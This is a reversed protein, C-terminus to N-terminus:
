KNVASVLQRLAVIVKPTNFDDCLAEHVAEKAAQLADRLTKERADWRQPDAISASRMQSKINQFFESFIREEAVAHEMADPSHM